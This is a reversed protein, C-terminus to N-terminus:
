KVKRLPCDRGQNCNHNCCVKNDKFLNLLYNVFEKIKKSM